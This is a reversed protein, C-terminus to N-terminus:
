RSLGYNALLKKKKCTKRIKDIRAAEVEGTFRFGKPFGGDPNNQVGKKWIPTKRGEAYAKKLAASMTRSYDDAKSEMFGEPKKLGLQQAKRQLTRLSVGLMKALTANFLVPYWEVLRELMQPTWKVPRRGPNNTM